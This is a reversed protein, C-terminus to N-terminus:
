VNRGDKGHEMVWRESQDDALSAVKMMSYVFMVDAVMFLIIMIWM